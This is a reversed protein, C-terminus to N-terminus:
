AQDPYLKKARDSDAKGSAGLEMDTIQMDISSDQKGQRQSSRAGTVEVAATLMFVTGVPPLETIGLRKLLEDDLTILTGYSYMPADSPDGPACALSETANKKDMKTSVMM